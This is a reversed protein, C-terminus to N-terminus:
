QPSAGDAAAAAREAELRAYEILDVPKPGRATEWTISTAGAMRSFIELVTFGEPGAVHPGYAEGPGSQMTDGPHLELGDATM